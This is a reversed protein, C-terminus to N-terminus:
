QNSKNQIDIRLVSPSFYLGDIINSVHIFVMLVVHFEMWLAIGVNEPFFGIKLL